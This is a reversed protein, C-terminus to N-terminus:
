SRTSLPDIGARRLAGALWVLPLGILGTPDENEVRVLLAAGLGESRFSGACDLPQDLEVYRRAETESLPRFVAITRDTHTDVTGDAHLVAVATLFHIAQGSAALLQAVARAPTGPKGLIEGQPTIAVQDSGIVISEPHKSFIAQAKALALRAALASAAEGPQRTEDIGPAETQFRIGLRELLARRYTSTSALYLIPPANNM